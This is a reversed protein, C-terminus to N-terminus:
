LLDALEVLLVRKRDAMIRKVVAGHSLALLTPVSAV